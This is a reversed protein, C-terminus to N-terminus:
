AMLELSFRKFQVGPDCLLPPPILNGSAELLPGTLSKVASTSLSGFALVMSRLWCRSLATSDTLFVVSAKAPQRMDPTGVTVQESSTRSSSM